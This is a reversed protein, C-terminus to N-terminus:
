EELLLWYFDEKTLNCYTKRSKEEKRIYGAKLFADCIQDIKTSGADIVYILDTKYFAGHRLMWILLTEIEYRSIGRIKISSLPAYKRVPPPVVEKKVCEKNEKQPLPKEKEHPEDPVECKEASVVESIIHEKGINYPTVAVSAPTLCGDDPEVYKPEFCTGYYNDAEEEDDDSGIGDEDEDEDGYKERMRENVEGNCEGLKYAAYAIGGMVGLKVIGKIIKKANM